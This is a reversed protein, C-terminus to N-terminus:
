GAEKAWAAEAAAYDEDSLVLTAKYELVETPHEEVWEHFMEARRGPSVNRPFQRKVERFLGVLEPEINQETFEDHEAASYKPEARERRKSEQGMLFQHTDWYAKRRRELRDLEARAKKRAAERESQCWATAKRRLEACQERVAALDEDREQRVRKQQERIGRIGERLNSWRLYREQAAKSKKANAVYLCEECGDRGNQRYSPGRVLRGEIMAWRAVPRVDDRDGMILAFITGDARRTSELDLVYLCHDVDPCEVATTRKRSEPDDILLYYSM